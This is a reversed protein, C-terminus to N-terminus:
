STSSSSSLNDNLSILSSSRIFTEPPVEFICRMAAADKAVSKPQLVKLSCCKQLGVHSSALAVAVVICRRSRVGGVAPIAVAIALDVAVAVAIGVAVAFVKIGVAAFDIGDLGVAFGAM